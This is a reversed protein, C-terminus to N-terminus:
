KYTCEDDFKHDPCCGGRQVFIDERVPALCVVCYCGSNPDRWDPRDEKTTVGDVEDCCEEWGYAIVNSPQHADTYTYMDRAQKKTLGRWETQASHTRIYFMYYTKTEM